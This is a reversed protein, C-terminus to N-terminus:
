KKRAFGSIAAVAACGVGIPIAIGGFGTLAVGYVIARLHSAAVRNQKEADRELIRYYEEIAWDINPYEKGLEYYVLAVEAATPLLCESRLQDYHFFENGDLNTM